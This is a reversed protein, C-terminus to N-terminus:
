TSKEVMQRLERIHEPGIRCCGGIMEAGLEIWERAMKMFHLPESLGLWTKTGPDYVEGSNPYVLIKKGSRADKMKQILGSIYKPPTCNVGLAFVTPHDKFLSICDAIPTGDNIHGDDKCSFSVWAPVQTKSLLESLVKAEQYSPVTEFAYLDIRESEMLQIRERHFAALLDDTIDYDGRYESGDALFAGYPGLSAAVLPREEIKGDHIARDIAKWALEISKLILAKSEKESHGLSMFGPVTAQYSATSICQAGAIIYDYHTQAIVEPKESLLSATWLPHNLHCGYSELVNSLGGDIILPIFNNLIKNLYGGSEHTLHEM